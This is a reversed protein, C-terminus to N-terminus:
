SADQTRLLGSLPASIRKAAGAAPGPSFGSGRQHPARARPECGRVRATEPGVNRFISTREQQQIVSQYQKIQRLGRM